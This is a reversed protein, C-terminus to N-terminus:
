EGALARKIEPWALGFSVFTAASVLLSWASFKRFKTWQQVSMAGALATDLSMKAGMALPLARTTKWRDQKGTAALCATVAYSAFGLLADPTEFHSYAEESGNIRDADFAPWPPDPLRKLLGVQYLAIGGLIACSFLSLGVIGRRCEITVHTGHRLDDRVQDTTEPM